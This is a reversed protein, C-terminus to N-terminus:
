HRVIKKGRVIYVGKPLHRLDAQSGVKQGNLNYVGDDADRTNIDAPAGDISTVLTADDPANLLSMESRSFAGPLETAEEQPAAESFRTSFSAAKASATATAPGFYARYAKLKSTGRSYYYKNNSIFVDGEPVNDYTKTGVFKWGDRTVSIEGADALAKDVQMYQTALKSTGINNITADGDGLRVLVPKYAPIGRRTSDAFNLQTVGNEETVGTFFYVKTNTGFAEQVERMNMSFPLWLTNYKGAELPKNTTVSTYLGKSIAEPSTATQDLNLVNTTSPKRYIFNVTRDPDGTRWYSSRDSNTAIWGNNEINWIEQGTLTKSSSGTGWYYAAPTSKDDLHNMDASNLALGNSGYNKNLYAIVESANSGVSSNWNFYDWIYSTKWPYADFKLYGPDTGGAQFVTMRQHTNSAGRQRLTTADTTNLCNSNWLSANYHVYNVLLGNWPIYADWNFNQRNELLYYEGEISKTSGPMYVVYAKDYDNIGNSTGGLPKMNTIKQPDSLVIPEDWGACWREFATYGAPCYGASVDDWSDNGGNWSGNYSGSNMLDWADMGYNKYAVDYMDPYGMCHSFEHCITGIGNLQTGNFTYTQSSSNYTQNTALENSCAYTDIKTGNYTLAGFNNPTFQSYSNTGTQYYYTSGFIGSSSTYYSENSAGSTLTFKHPWVTWADGGDAEGQGAYIVFIFEMEGDGDWDYDRANLKGGDEAYNGDFADKIAEYVMYSAHGDTTVQSYRGRTRTFLNGGYYACNQSLTVPGVVDFDLDFLGHSQDQFYRRVSGHFPAANFDPNNIIDRYMAAVSSYGGNFTKYNTDSFKKDQFQALIILGRKQGRFKSKDTPIGSARRKGPAKRAQAEAEKVRLKAIEARLKAKESGPKGNLAEDVSVMSYTGDDNPAYANGAKDALFSGREDGRLQAFIQTGDKLTIKRWLGPKAPVAAAGLAFLALAFSLVVGGLLSKRNM